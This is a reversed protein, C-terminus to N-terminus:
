GQESSRQANRRLQEVGAYAIRRGTSKFDSEPGATQRKAEISLGQEMVMGHIGIPDDDGEGRANLTEEEDTPQVSAHTVIFNSARKHAIHGDVMKRVEIMGQPLDSDVEAHFDFFRRGHMKQFEVAVVALPSYHHHSTILSQHNTILSLAERLHVKDPAAEPAMNLTM